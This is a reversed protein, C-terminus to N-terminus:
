GEQTPINTFMSISVTGLAADAASNSKDNFIRSFVWHLENERLGSPDVTIQDCLGLAQERTTIRECFRLAAATKDQRSIETPFYTELTGRNLLYIDCERLMWLLEHKLKQVKVHAADELVARRNKAIQRAFFKDGAQKVEAATAQQGLCKEYVQCLDEWRSKMEDSDAIKKITSSSSREQPYGCLVRDVQELLGARKRVCDETAGIHQFGDTLCDLDALVIVRVDFADFFDRYHRINSKGNVRCLSIGLKRVCWDPNLTRALHPFVMYDCIGEVLVVSSTFFALNNTEYGIIQFRFRQDVDSLDIPIAISYPKHDNTSPPAKTLKVFTGTSEASFFLPSHTSVVVQDTQSIVQLADFLVQQAAPHLYLEPEEFLLLFRPGKGPGVSFEPHRRLKAYSRLLSFVISRKLGDGKMELDSKVGDDVFIRANSLITKIEPPPIQISITVTPFNERVFQQVTSELLKIAELRGDSPQGDEAIAINLMENLRRFAQEENQLQPTIANLLIGILRGFSTGEKTKMDDSFDKVAPIYVVEPLFARVSADIGTPVSEERDTKQDPPLSDGFEQILARADAVKTEVDFKDTLEPFKAKLKDALTRGARGGKLVEDVAESSFRSDRPVKIIWRLRGTGDTAYRRIFTVTHNVVGARLRVRHEPDVIAEFDQDKIEEFTGTVVVESAPDYFYHSSLKKGEIFCVLAQLLSSKGANNHGTLCVFRSMPISIDRLGKFNAM